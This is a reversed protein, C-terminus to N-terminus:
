GFRKRLWNGIFVSTIGGAVGVLSLALSFIIFALIKDSTGQFGTFLFSISLFFGYLGGCWLIHKKESVFLGLLVGAIGWFIVNEWGILFVHTSLFGCIIGLFASIWRLLNMQRM